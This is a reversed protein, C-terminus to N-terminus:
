ELDSTEVVCGFRQAAWLRVRHLDDPDIGARAAALRVKRREARAKSISLHRAHAAQSTHSM